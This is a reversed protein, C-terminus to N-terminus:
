KSNWWWRNAPVSETPRVSTTPEVKDSEVRMEDDKVVTMLDGSVGGAVQIVYEGNKMRKHNVVSMVQRPPEYAVTEFSGNTAFSGRDWGIQADLREDFILASVLALDFVNQLDAFALDRAALKEYNETFKEAFQRNVPESKGTAVRKGQATVLQNESQCLVSSGKFEFATRDENHLIADYKMTLWWRLADITEPAEDQTQPLLDFFSKIGDVGKLKGVGIMKMRYDAEVIVRAVRSDAAIGQLRVDQMGLKKKLTQTYSNINRVGTKNTRTVYETINKMGEPRPDISCLFGRSGSQSFTRMLTVFDDLQLTPRGTIEGVAQGTADYRWPEAPGGIIIDQEEPLVMVYRLRVLGGMNRMTELVPLGAEVRQTAAEELRRVSLFRLDAEEAMEANLDARRAKNILDNLRGATELKSAARIIGGPEVLVGNPFPSMTGGEGDEDQWLAPPRTQQRILNMLTNFDALAAGGLLGKDQENKKLATRPVSKMSVIAGNFNGEDAQAGAVIQMLKAQEAPNAAAKATQMAPGFEGAALQERLLDERTMQKAAPAPKKAFDADNLNIDQAFLSPTVLGVLM